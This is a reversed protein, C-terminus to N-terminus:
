FFAYAGRLHRRRIRIFPFRRSRYIGYKGISTIQRSRLKPAPEEADAIVETIKTEEPFYEQQITDPCEGTNECRIEPHYHQAQVKSLELGFFTAITALWYRTRKLTAFEILTLDETQEVRFNGCAVGDKAKARIQEISMASFDFVEHKCKDCFRGNASNKM